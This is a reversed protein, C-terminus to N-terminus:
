LNQNYVRKNSPRLPYSFNNNIYIKGQNIRSITAKSLNYKKEIDSLKLEDKLLDSYINNLLYTSIHFYPKRIPYSINKNSYFHQGKNIKYILNSDTKTIKAIQEISFTTYLLYYCIENVLDETKRENGNQRLPYSLNINYRVKGRNIISLYDKSINYKDSIEQYSLVNEILDRQIKNITEDSFSALYSDEGNLVPPEDGGPTMNYGKTKDLYTNYYSIWYIERENYNTVPGEIIEIKFNNIGYKRMANYLRINRDSFSAALCHEQWRRKIDKTQGIYLKNNILNIIKYIYKEM